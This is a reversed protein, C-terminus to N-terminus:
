QVICVHGMKRVSHRVDRQLSGGKIAEGDTYMEHSCYSEVCRGPTSIGERGHTRKRNVCM